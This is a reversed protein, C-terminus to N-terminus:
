FAFGPAPAFAKLPPLAADFLPRSGFANGARVFLTAKAGREPGLVCVLRGEDALQDLLAQPRTEVRGEVLIADFPAEAAAGTEVAGEILTAQDGLRERAVAALAAVPELAVVRAGLRALIAAGYGHGTAVDLARSGPRVQLAQIMRALVMPAPMVRVDGEAEGLRITQDIYAFGERGQPMFRERPVSDFADLVANDNVDFTRLQCDVMLRRAQAFDLM